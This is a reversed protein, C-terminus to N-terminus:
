KHSYPGLLTKEIQETMRSAGLIEIRSNMDSIKSILRLYDDSHYDTREEVDHNLQLIKNELELIESFATKAENFLTKNDIHKMQQPLYGMTLGSPKEVIGMDAIQLGLIIKLLTTKGAGNNGVLGIRDKPNILFSIDNLM